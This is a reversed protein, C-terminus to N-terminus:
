RFCLLVKEVRAYSGRVVVCWVLAADAPVAIYKSIRLMGLGSAPGAFEAAINGLDALGLVAM